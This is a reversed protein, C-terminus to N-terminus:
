RCQEVQIEHVKNQFSSESQTRHYAPILSSLDYCGDGDMYYKEVAVDVDFGDSVVVVFNTFTKNPFVTNIGFFCNTIKVRSGNM